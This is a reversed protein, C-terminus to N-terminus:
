RSYVTINTIRGNESRFEIGGPVGKAEYVYKFAVRDLHTWNQRSKPPGLKAEMALASDGVRVGEPTAFQSNQTAIQWVRGTKGFDVNLKGFTYINLIEDSSTPDGMVRFVQAKSMGMSIPGIRQGAVIRNDSAEASARSEGESIEIGGFQVLTVLFLIALSRESTVRCSTKM